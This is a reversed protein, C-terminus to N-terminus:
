FNFYERQSTSVTPNDIDWIPGCYHPFDVVVYLPLNGKNPSHNKAFIIEEVTGCAGNHLGWLPCFNKNELAVKAGVCLLSCTPSDNDFHGRISKGMTNSYGQARCFAVPNNVSSHKLLQKHNIRIREANRHTLFIAKSKIDDAAAKGHIEEIRDIHLSMLKAVQEETLQDAVRLRDLLEKDKVQKDQVRKTGHLEMVFESCELFAKRGLATVKGGSKSVLVKLAGESISPLQYDDGVLIVVPLGGWSEAQLHGGDFITEAIMREATGLDKSSLLSREDVILCLLAQFKKILAIRKEKSLSNPVYNNNSVRRKLLHHFTEGYVNFAAAGTPAAVKVVSNCDFMKRLLSVLTNIVVSKGSGGAGNITMRLPKFNSLDECELWEKIKNMVEAVIKAQDQFLDNVSYPSGNDKTPLDLAESELSEFETVKYDLWSENQIVEGTASKV